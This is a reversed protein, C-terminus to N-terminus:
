DGLKISKVLETLAQRKVHITEDLTVVQANIKAIAAENKGLRTSFQKTLSRNVKAEGLTAINRRLRTQENNIRKRQKALERKQRRLEDLEKNAQRVQEIAQKIKPPADGELYLQLAQRALPHDWNFRRPVTQEDTIEITTSDGTITAPIYWSNNHERTNKPANKLRWGDRKVIRLYLKSPADKTLRTVEFKQTRRQRTECRVRGDAISLLKTGKKDQSMSPKISIGRELSFPLFTEADAEIRDFVGSGVFMGNSLVTVPGGQLMYGTDNKFRVARYPHNRADGGADPRYLLLDEGEIKRNVLSVLTSSRDPVTVRGPVDYRFLGRMAQGKAGSGMANAFDAVGVKALEAVGLAGGGGTGGRTGIMDMARSSGIEGSFDEQSSFDMAGGARGRKRRSKAAKQRRKHARGVAAQAVPANAQGHQVGVAPRQVFHPKHLDYRFSIPSGSSLSLEVQDWDEGSTNDVVAWGQLLAGEKANGLVLRYAPKWTPMEAVYSVLLDHKGAHDFRVALEVPKWKGQNLSHDLVKELGVQLPRDLVKVRKITSLAIHAIGGDQSLALHTESSGEEIGVVRGTFQTLNDKTTVSLRAGRFAQLLSILGGNQRVQPPLEDLRQAASKDIPLSISQSQGGAKDIVTLSTLLDNIQEPRVALRLTDGHMEGAREFYAIGNQYLVVRKVPLPDLSTTQMHSCGLLTAAAILVASRM